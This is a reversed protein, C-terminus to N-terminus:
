VLGAVAAIAVSIVLGLVGVERVSAGSSSKGSGSGTSSSTTNSASGSTVSSENGTLAAFGIATPNYRFVSYVNKLFSAGVIWQIPSNGSRDGDDTRNGVSTNRTLNMQFIAGTCMSTDRTFSGLNFDSNSISYSLGGFQLTVSVTTSCPYQYYGSYGTSASMAESGPINAYITSLISSPVGILTTGTDIAAQPSSLSVSGNQVTMGQVPIRWYDTDGSAISIYNVSGTYKSSDIGGMTFEGGSQEVQTVGTVGRWRQLYFGMEQNSWQGSSALSQWFPTAATQAISKWALGMLGSLPNSILNSSTTNVAGFTQGTVSFGAMSVTDSAIVGSATGSGYTISFPQNTSSFTSSSTTTFLSISQCTSSSCQSDAVWLDASGTDLIVDFTQGPTGITVQGAYSADVGVDILSVNGTARKHLERKELEVEDQDRRLLEQGDADLHQAYKRRMGESSGQAMGPPGRPRPPTTPVDPAQPTNQTSTRAIAVTIQRRSHQKVCAM